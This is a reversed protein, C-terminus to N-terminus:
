WCFASNLTTEMDQYDDSEAKLKERYFIKNDWDNIELEEKILYLIYFWIIGSVSFQLQSM